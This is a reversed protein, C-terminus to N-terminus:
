AAINQQETGIVAVHDPCTPTDTAPLMWHKGDTSQIFGCSSFLPRCPFNVDTHILQGIIEGNGRKRMISVLTAMVAQEIGLGLVRCSMVWQEIANDKILVVGVLGHDTSKDAAEFAHFMGGAAFFATCEEATWRKGTTNFQNTKNILEFARPFRQHDTGAIPIITVSPALSRLFDEPSMTKRAAERELKAKILETRKASEASLSAVQTESSWLLTRRFYYPYRGLIRMEPFAAAMASRENPNDDIFLVSRPLLSVGELIEQMNEIKPRWNIRIAAFDELLLRDRFIKPWIERIRSEENKSVIALLVGRKKLYLLAEAVGIPWGEVMFGGIDAMDGSVGNWLTDDLDMVVLKVADAQRVARYMNVMEAWLAERFIEPWLVKYHEEMTAVPEMRATIRGPTSMMGGHSTTTISDDQCYRRGISASIRDIDLVYANKYSQVLSELRENLQDIFYEQNRLDYKPFLVGMSNRQPVFFNTVFTLLGHEINWQMRARLFLDLKTSCEEFAREYEALDDYPLRALVMDPFITRLPIQIVQFDYSRVPVGEAPESPLNGTNNMVILDVACNSPNSHHFRWAEMMCSGVMAIRRLPLETFSLDSPTLFGPGNHGSFIDAPVEVEPFPRRGERRGCALYHALGSPWVGAAVAEAVDWNKRLYWSEDFEDATPEDLPM